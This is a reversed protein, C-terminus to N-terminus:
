PMSLKPVMVLEPVILTSLLPPMPMSLSQALLATLMIALKPVMLMALVPPSPTTFTLAGPTVMLFEHIPTIFPATSPAGTTPHGWGVTSVWSRGAVM